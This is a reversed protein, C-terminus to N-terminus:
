NGPHLNRLLEGRKCPRGEGMLSHLSEHTGSPYREFVQIVKKATAKARVPITTVTVQQTHIHKDQQLRAAMRPPQSKSAFLSYDGGV